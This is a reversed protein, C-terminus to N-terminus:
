SESAPRLERDALVTLDPHDLLATVPWRRDAVGARLAGLAAAKGEGQVLLLLARAARLSAIGLTLGRRPVESESAFLLGQARRTSDALTVVHTGLAWDDGPENFAVHGNAGLGLVALDLGGAAEIAADYARCEADPDAAAGDLLRIRDARLGLPGFLHRALFGAYSRRDSAPLGLFEDLDFFRAEDPRLSGAQRRAILREYLGLPTAGTPLAIVATPQIALLAAVRAAAAEALAEADEVWILNM